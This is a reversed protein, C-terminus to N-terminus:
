SNSRSRALEAAWKSCRAARSIRVSWFSPSAGPPRISAVVATAVHRPARERRASSRVTASRHVATRCTWIIPGRSWPRTDAATGPVPVPARTRRPLSSDHVDGYLEPSLRRQQRAADLHRECEGVMDDQHRQAHRKGRVGEEHFADADDVLIRGRDPNRPAPRDHHRHLEGDSRYGAGDKRELKANEPGLQHAAKAGGQAHAEGDLTEGEEELRDEDTDIEIAPRAKPWAGM